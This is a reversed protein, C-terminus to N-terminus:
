FADNYCGRLLKLRCLIKGKAKRVSTMTIADFRCCSFEDQKYKITRALSFM